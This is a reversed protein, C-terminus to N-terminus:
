SKDDDPREVRLAFRPAAYDRPRQAEPITVTNGDRLSKYHPSMIEVGAENFADQINEHLAGYINRMHVPDRTYVHLEYSVYFDDLSTQLVYPAPTKEVGGTRVGAAILLAHVTRWPADYGITVGTTLIVGDTRAMTSYNILQGNLIAINPVSVIENLPTRIRTLTMTTETVVGV